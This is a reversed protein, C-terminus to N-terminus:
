VLSTSSDPISPVIRENSTRSPMTKRQGTFDAAINLGSHPPTSASM